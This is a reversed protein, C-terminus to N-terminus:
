TSKIINYYKDLNKKYDFRNLNEISYKLLKKCKKKNKVYYLIKSSLDQHDGSKFLLGGKGYSLIERPGTPCDSSIIFKKLTLAELLVNPLGEYKSSLVFLDTQNIFKYPNNIFNILKVKHSLKNETIFKKLKNKLIGKGILVAQFDIRNNLYKLSKLLTIQDKQETYRGVNLIKLIKNNSFIKRSKKKALIKIDQVNLPNYICTANVGFEKKLDKKFEKSNVLIKNASNLFIKFLFRKFLNKSWGHPASNSRSIIKTKLLKCLIICYINAQFSFVIPNKSAYIEKILLLIALFYKFRRGFKDWMNSKLTIFKIDKSFRFKYKKSITIVSVYEFKKILFNSILFFNKEVGGGEISPMFM